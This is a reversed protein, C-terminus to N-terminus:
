ERPVWGQISPEYRVTRTCVFGGQGENPWQAWSKSWGGSRSVNFVAISLPISTCNQDPAIGFQQILDRPQMSGSLPSGITVNFIEGFFGGVGNFVSFAADVTGVTTTQDAPSPFNYSVAQLSSFDAANASWGTLNVAPSTPRLMMGCYPATPTVGASNWTMRLLDGPAAFVTAQSAVVVTTENCGPTTGNTFTITVSHTTTAHAPTVGVLTTATAILAAVTAVGLSYFPNM